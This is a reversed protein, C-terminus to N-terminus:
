IFRFFDKRNRIPKKSNSHRRKLMTNLQKGANKYDDLLISTQCIKGSYYSQELGFALVIDSFLSAEWYNIKKYQTLILM